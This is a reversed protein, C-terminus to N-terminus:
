RFLIYNTSAWVKIMSLLTQETKVDFASRISLAGDLRHLSVAAYRSPMEVISADDETEEVVFYPSGGEGLRKYGVSTLLHEIQVQLDSPNKQPLAVAPVYERLRAIFESLTDGRVIGATDSGGVLKVGYDCEYDDPLVMHKNPWWFDQIELYVASRCLIRLLEDEILKDFEAEITHVGHRDKGVTEVLKQLRRQKPSLVISAM